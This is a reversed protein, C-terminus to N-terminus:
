AHSVRRVDSGDEGGSEIAVGVVQCRLEIEGDGEREQYGGRETETDKYVPEGAAPM